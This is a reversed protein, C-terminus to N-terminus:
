ETYLEHIVQFIPNHTDIHVDNMYLGERNIKYIHYRELTNLHKGQKGTTIVEMTGQWQVM